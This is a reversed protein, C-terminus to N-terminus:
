TPDGARFIKRSPPRPADVGLRRDYGRERRMWLVLEAPWNRSRKGKTRASLLMAVVDEASPPKAGAMVCNARVAETIELTAPPPTEGGEPQWPEDTVPPKGQVGEASVVSLSPSGSGTGFANASEHTIRTVGGTQLANRKANSRHNLVRIATAERRGDIQERTENKKAYGLLEYGNERKKFLGVDDSSLRECLRVAVRVGVDLPRGLMDFPVIGDRTEDERLWALTAAYYGCAELGARLFKKDRWFCVDLKAFIM